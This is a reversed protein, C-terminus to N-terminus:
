QNPQPYLPLDVPDEHPVTVAPSLPPDDHRQADHQRPDRLRHLLGASRSSRREARRHRLSRFFKALTRDITQNKPRRAQELRRTRIRQLLRPHAPAPQRGQNVAAAAAPSTPPLECHDATCAATILFITNLM